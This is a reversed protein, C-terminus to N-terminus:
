DEDESMMMLKPLLMPLAQHSADPLVQLHLECRLGM